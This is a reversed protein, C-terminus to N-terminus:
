MPECRETKGIVIRFCLIDILIGNLMFPVDDEDETDMIGFHNSVAEIGFGIGYFLKAEFFNM